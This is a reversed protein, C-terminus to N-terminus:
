FFATQPALLELSLILFIAYIALLFFASKKSIAGKKRLVAWIFIAAAFTLLVPALLPLTNIKSPSLIALTGLVLTINTVASGFLDGMALAYEKKKIARIEVSLEPLTTGIAVATAGFITQPILLISTIQIASDVMFKSSLLLLLVSAAFAAVLKKKNHSVNNSFGTPVKGRKYLRIILFAFLVICVVGYSFNVSGSSFIFLSIVTAILLLEILNDVEHKKLYVAGGFILCLPLVLALDALNAGFIDGIALAPANEFASFIAVMLEPLSTSVSLVIFGIALTSIGFAKSLLLAHEVVYKSSKFLIIASAIFVFVPFVISQM